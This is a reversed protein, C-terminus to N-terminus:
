SCIPCMILGNENCESCRAIKGAETVIKCSGNCDTCPIFRFGGCGDCSSKSPNLSIGDLLKELTGNEHLKLVDEAEGIYRGKIFVRPVPVAKQMLDKLEQKFESHLSVDREDFQIGFSQIISRTNQCDEFTKRVGRLSTSYLVVSQEGNPPCSKEFQQLPDQVAKKVKAAPTFGQTNQKPIVVNFPNAKAQPTDGQPIKNKDMPSNPLPVAKRTLSNPQKKEASLIPEKETSEIAGRAHSVSRWDDLSLKEFAEEFSALFEPDFLDSKAPLLESPIRKETSVDRRTVNKSSHDASSRPALKNKSPSAAAAPSARRFSAKLISSKVSGKSPSARSNNSNNVSGKSANEPSNNGLSQPISLVRPNSPSATQAVDHEEGGSHDEHMGRPASHDPDSNPSEIKDLEEVTHITVFTRRPGARLREVPPVDVATVKSVQEEEVGEMLEWMNITEPEAQVMGKVTTTRRAEDKLKVLVNSMESWSQPPAAVGQEDIDKIREYVEKMPDAEKSAEDVQKQSDLKLIGYTSSTLAVLHYEDAADPHQQDYLRNVMKGNGPNVDFERSLSCGM